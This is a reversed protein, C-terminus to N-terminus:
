KRPFEKAYDLGLDKCLFRLSEEFPSIRRQVEPKKAPLPLTKGTGDDIVEVLNDLHIYLLVVTLEPNREHIKQKALKMNEIHRKREYARARKASPPNYYEAKAKPYVGKYVGCDEHDMIAVTQINHLKKALDLHLDFYEWANYTLIKDLLDRSDQDALPREVDDLIALSSGAYVILDAQNKQGSAAMYKEEANVFRFDICQIRLTGAEHGLASAQEGGVRESEWSSSHAACSFTLFSALLLSTAKNM